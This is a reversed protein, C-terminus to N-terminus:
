ADLRIAERAQEAAEKPKFLLRLALSYNSRLNAVQPSMEIKRRLIDAVGRYDGLRTFITGAINLAEPDRPHQKLAAEALRRAEVLLGGRLKEMAHLLLQNTAPRQGPAPRDRQGFDRGKSSKM